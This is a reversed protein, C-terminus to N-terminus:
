RKGLLTPTRVAISAATDLAASKAEYFAGIPNHWGPPMTFGYDNKGGYTLTQSIVQSLNLYGASSLLGGARFRSLLSDALIADRANSLDYRQGNNLLFNRDSTGDGNTDERIVSAGNGIRTETKINDFTGDGNTDTRTTTVRGDDDYRIEQLRAGSTAFRVYEAMQGNPGYLTASSLAGSNYMNTQTAGTSFTLTTTKIFGTVYDLSYSMGIVPAQSLRKASAGYAAGNQEYYTIDPDAGPSARALYNGAVEIMAKELVDASMKGVNADYVKTLVSNLDFGPATPSDPRDGLVSIVGGGNKSIERAVRWNNYAAESEKTVGVLAALHFDDRMETAYKKERTQDVTNYIYHGIEHSLIGVLVHPELGDFAVGGYAGFVIGSRRHDWFIGSERENVVIKKLGGDIVGENYQIIQSVLTPSKNILDVVDRGLKMNAFMVENGTISVM